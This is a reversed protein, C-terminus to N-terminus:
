VDDLVYVLSLAVWANVASATAADLLGITVCVQFLIKSFLTYMCM